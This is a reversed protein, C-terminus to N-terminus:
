RTAMSCFGRDIVTTRFFEYPTFDDLGSDRLELERASLGRELSPLGRRLCLLGREFELEGPELGREFSDLGRAESIVWLM